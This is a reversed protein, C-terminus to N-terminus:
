SKHFLSLLGKLITYSWYNEYFYFLLFFIFFPLLGYQESFLSKTGTPLIVAIRHPLYTVYFFPWQLLATGVPYKDVKFGKYNVYVGEKDIREYLKPNTEVPKSRRVLDHHIFLSPLYDYYGIADAKIVVDVKALNTQILLVFVLIIVLEPLIYKVYRINM